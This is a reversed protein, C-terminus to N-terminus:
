RLGAHPHVRGDGHGPLQAHRREARARDARVSLPGPDGGATRDCNTIRLDALRPQGVVVNLAYQNNTERDQYEDMDCTYDAFAWVNYTDPVTFGATNVVVDVTGGAPIAPITDFGFAGVADCALPPGDPDAFLALSASGSAAPGANKVRVTYTIAERAPLDVTAGQVTVGEVHLDPLPRWEATFAM